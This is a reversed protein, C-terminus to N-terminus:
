HKADLNFSALKTFLVSKSLSIVLKLLYVVEFLVFCKSTGFFRFLRIVFSKLKKM